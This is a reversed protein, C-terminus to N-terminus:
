NVVSSYESETSWVLKDCLLRKLQMIYDTRIYKYIDNEPLALRPVFQKMNGVFHLDYNCMCTISHLRITRYLQQKDTDICGELNLVFVCFCASDDWFMNRFIISELKVGFLIHSISLIKWMLHYEGMTSPSNRNTLLEISAQIGRNM